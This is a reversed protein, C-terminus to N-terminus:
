IISEAESESSELYHRKFVHKLCVVAHHLWVLAISESKPNLRSNILGLASKPNLRSNILGLASKPNLRSNILGLASKPNM